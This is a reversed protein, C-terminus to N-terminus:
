NNAHFKRARGADEHRKYSYRHTTVKRRIMYEATLLRVALRAVSKLTETNLHLLRCEIQDANAAPSQLRTNESAIWEKM